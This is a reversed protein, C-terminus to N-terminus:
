KVAKCFECGSIFSLAFHWTGVQIYMGDEPTLYKSRKGLIRDPFELVRYSEIAVVDDNDNSHETRM